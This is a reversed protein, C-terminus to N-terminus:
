PCSPVIGVAATHKKAAMIRMVHLAGAPDLAATPEDLLMIQTQRALLAAILVKQYEGGSLQNGPAAAATALAAAFYVVALYGGAAPISRFLYVAAYAACCAAVSLLASVSGVAFVKLVNRIIEKKM